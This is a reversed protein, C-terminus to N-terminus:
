LVPAKWRGTWHRIATGSFINAQFSWAIEVYTEQRSSWVGFTVGGSTQSPKPTSMLEDNNHNPHNDHHALYEQIM